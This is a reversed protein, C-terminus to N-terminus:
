ITKKTVSVWITQPKLSMEVVIATTKKESGGKYGMKQSAKSGNAKTQKEFQQSINTGSKASKKSGKNDENFLAKNFSLM